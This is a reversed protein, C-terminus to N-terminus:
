LNSLECILMELQLQPTAQSTKIALDAAAIREIARAFVRADTRRATALFEERKSFPLAVVRFVESTPAGRAMLEKALALRHYNSAILGLLMVPEAGDALLHRLTMLARKKDRRILHDTLEFNSLERSRDTLAEVLDITIQGQPLAATALKELEIALRRVHPGVLEIIHHLTREDVTAGLEKLRGRAWQALEMDNLIPFEVAACRELLLKSLRKRKDLDDATFIVVATEAPQVLYRGLAEEDAERLRSFNAIHVVRRSGMVPLEYASALAHQIDAVALDFRSENFERLPAGNLASDAIARAAKERLYEEPGYLLYLPHLKGSKLQRRLEERTLTSM